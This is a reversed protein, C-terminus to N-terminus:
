NCHEDGQKIYNQFDERSISDKVRIDQLLKCVIKVAASWSGCNRRFNRTCGPLLLVLLLGFKLPSYYLRYCILKALYYSYDKGWNSKQGIKDRSAGVKHYIKSQLLCAMKMKQRYMRLSFEFDEEGFFFRETLLAGDMSLLEPRFFLACGSIFTIPFFVREKIESAPANHYYRKRRGFKLKGGCLWVREKDDYYNIQPSIAKIDEHLGAFATLTTLFSPEVETDNNLLMYYDPRYQSAFRIGINNGKAFGHNENEALIYLPFDATHTKKWHKLRVVSDDSSNNDVVVVFLQGQAKSLSTLCAITDDAGNWNLLIIATTKNNM